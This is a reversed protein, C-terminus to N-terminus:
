PHRCVWASAECANRICHVSTPGISKGGPSRKEDAIYRHLRREARDRSIAQNRADATARIAYCNQLASAAPSIQLGLACVSLIFLLVFYFRMQKGM